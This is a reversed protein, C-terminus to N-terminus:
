HFFIGCLPTPLMCPFFKPFIGLAWRRTHKTLSCTGQGVGIYINQVLRRQMFIDDKRNTQAHAIGRINYKDHPTGNGTQVGSLMELKINTTLHSNLHSTMLFFKLYYERLNPPLNNKQPRRPKLTMKMKSTRKMKSTTRMKSPTSIKTTTKMNLTAKM